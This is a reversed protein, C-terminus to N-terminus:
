NLCKGGYRAAALTVSSACASLRAADCRKGSALSPIDGFTGAARLSGKCLEDRDAILLGRATQQMTKRTFRPLRPLRRLLWCNVAFLRRADWQSGSPLNEGSNHLPDQVSSGSTGGFGSSLTKLLLCHRCSPRWLRKQHVFAPKLPGDSFLRSQFSSHRLKAPILPLAQHGRLSM